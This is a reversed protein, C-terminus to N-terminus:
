TTGSTGRTIRGYERNVEPYIPDTIIADVTHSALKKLEKRCDGHILTVAEIRAKREVPSRAVAKLPKAAPRYKGDQGVTQALQSIEGTSQMEGRVSGVTTHHVGLMKAVWRLSKDPTERLQDAILERKQETNLQRRALNLARALARKEDEELGAQVIEPCDYGLEDAIQKRYNGDIIKRRPGDSDVLIPVLVGNVAINDRLATFEEYSLPPLQLVPEYKVKSATKTKPMPCRRRGNYQMGLGNDLPAVLRPGGVTCFECREDGLRYIASCRSASWCRGASSVSDTRTTRHRYFKADDADGIVRQKAGVVMTLLKEVNECPIYGPFTQGDILDQMDQRSIGLTTLLEHHSDYFVSNLDIQRTIDALTREM